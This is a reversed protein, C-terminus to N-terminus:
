SFGRASGFARESVPWFPFPPFPFLPHPLSPCSYLGEDDAAWTPRAALAPSAPLPRRRSSSSAARKAACLKDQVEKKARAVKRREVGRRAEALALVRRDSVGVMRDRICM